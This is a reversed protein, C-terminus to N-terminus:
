MIIIIIKLNLLLGLFSEREWFSGFSSVTARNFAARFNLTVKVSCGENTSGKEENRM